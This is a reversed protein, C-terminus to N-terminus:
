STAFPNGLGPSPNNAPSVGAPPAAEVGTRLRLGREAGTTSEDRGDAEQRQWHLKWIM